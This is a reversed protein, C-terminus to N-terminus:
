HFVEGGNADLSQGTVAGSLDSAFFVVAGAVSAPTPIHRLSIGAAVQDYQEQVPPGGKSERYAFYGQVNPGWMWGPVVTNVRIGHPGLESALARAAVLLAGKSTAYGAERPYPKRVTMSGVFVISGRGQEKMPAVVHQALALSGFVNVDFIGRWEDLDVDEFHQFVDTRFASNVLCDVRGFRELTADVLHRSQATDSVDTPVPLATGGADTIQAAVEDLFPATRAALVVSAGQGALALAIERGLGPGVGSVIAVKDDLLGTV